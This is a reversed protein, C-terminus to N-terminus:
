PETSVPHIVSTDQEVKQKRAKYKIRVDSAYLIILSVIACSAVTAIM